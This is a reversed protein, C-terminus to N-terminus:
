GAFFRAAKTPIETARKTEALEARLRKNEAELDFSQAPTM